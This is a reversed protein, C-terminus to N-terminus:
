RRRRRRLGLAPAFALVAAVAPAPVAAYGTLRIKYKEGIGAESLDLTLGPMAQLLNLSGGGPLGGGGQTEGPAAGGGGGGGGSGGGGPAAPVTFTASLMGNAGLSVFHFSNFDQDGSVADMLSTRLALSTSSEGVHVANAGTYSFSTTVDSAAGNLRWYDVDAGPSGGYQNGGGDLVDIRELWTLGAAQMIGYLDITVLTRQIPNAVLSSTVYSAYAGTYAILPRPAIQQVTGVEVNEALAHSTAVLATLALATRALAHKM